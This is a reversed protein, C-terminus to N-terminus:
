CRGPGLHAAIRSPCSSLSTKPKRSLRYELNTYGGAALKADTLISFSLESSMDRAFLHVHDSKESNQLLDTLGRLVEQATELPLYLQLVRVSHERDADLMRM